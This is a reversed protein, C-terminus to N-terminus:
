DWEKKIAEWEELCENLGEVCESEGARALVAIIYLLLLPMILGLAVELLM